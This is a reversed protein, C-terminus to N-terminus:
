AIVDVLNKLWKKSKFRRFSMTFKYLDDCCVMLCVIPLPLNLWIVGIFALPLGICWIGSLDLLMCFRTDGGGRLISVINIFNFSRLVVMLGDIIIVWMAISRIADSVNYMRVVFLSYACQLLGVALGVAMAMFLFRKAYIEATELDGNGLSGGVMVGSAQSLGNIIIFPIGAVAGSINLAALASTGMRGYIVSYLVMGIGWVFENFFVPITTKYYQVIFQRGRPWMEKISAAPVMKNLYIVGLLIAMEVIRAIGTALAAGKVGMAPFGFKGFIMTYNLIINLFVGIAICITALKPQGISRLTFQYTISIAMPIFSWGVWMLYETGLRAVEPTANFLSLFQMPLCYAVITVLGTGILINVLGLGQVRRVSAIDKAGWFQSVYIGAGFVIGSMLLSLVLTLQNALGVAVLEDAGLQGTMVTNVMGLGVGILNQLATPIGITLV